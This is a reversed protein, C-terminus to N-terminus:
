NDISLIPIVVLSVGSFNFFFGPNIRTQTKINYGAQNIRSIAV